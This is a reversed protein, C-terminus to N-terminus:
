RTRSIFDRMDNDGTTIQVQAPILFVSKEQASIKEEAPLSSDQPSGEIFMKKCFSRASGKQTQLPRYNRSICWVVM